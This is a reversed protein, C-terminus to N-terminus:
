LGSGPLLERLRDRNNAVFAAEYEQQVAARTRDLDRRCGQDAAAIALEFSIVTNLLRHQEPTLRAGRILRVEGEAVEGGTVAEYLPNMQRAIENQIATQDPYSYGASTMCGSWARQAAVVRPDTDIRTWLAALQDGFVAMVAATRDTARTAERQCGAPEDGTGAAGDLATQYRARDASSLSAVVAINPDVAPKIRRLSLASEFGTSIGYGFRRRFDDIPLNTPLGTPNAAAGVVAHPVYEWGHRAMCDRILEQRRRETETGLRAIEESTGGVGLLEALTPPEGRATAPVNPDGGCGGAGILVL